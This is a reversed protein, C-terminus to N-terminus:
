DDTLTFSWKYEVVEGSTKRVKLYATHVGVGLDAKWCFFFPGTAVAVEEGDEDLLWTLTAVGDIGYPRSLVQDDVIFEIRELFPDAESFDDGPQLLPVANLKACISPALPEAVHWRGGAEHKGNRFDEVNLISGPSPAVAEIYTYPGPYPQPAYYPTRTPIPSPSAPINTATAPSSTITVLNVDKTDAECAVFLMLCITMVVLRTGIRWTLM